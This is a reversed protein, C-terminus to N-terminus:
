LTPVYKIETPNDPCVAQVIFGMWKNKKNGIDLGIGAMESPTQGGLATHSLIFNYYTRYHDLMMETAKDSNLGRMIKDRERWTGHFCELKNNSIPDRIGAQIDKAIKKM